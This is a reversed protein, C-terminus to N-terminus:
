LMGNIYAKVKEKQLHSLGRYTLLHEVEDNTLDGKSLPKKIDSYGLLYDTSVNFYQALRIIMSIDPEASGIEYKSISAQSIQLDMAIKQQNMNKEERLSKLRLM